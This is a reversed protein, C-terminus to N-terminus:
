KLNYKQAFYNNVDAIKRKYYPQNERCWEALEQKSIFPKQWSQGTMIMEIQISLDKIFAGVTWGEWIHKNM